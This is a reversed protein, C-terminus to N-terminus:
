TPRPLSPEAAPASGGWVSSVDSAASHHSNFNEKKVIKAMKLCRKGVAAASMAERARGGLM